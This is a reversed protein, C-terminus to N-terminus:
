VSVVRSNVRIDVETRQGGFGTRGSETCGQWELNERAVGGTRRKTSLATIFISASIRALLIVSASFHSSVSFNEVIGGYGSTGAASRLCRSAPKRRRADLLDLCEGIDGREGRVLALGDGIDETASVLIPVGRGKNEGAFGRWM